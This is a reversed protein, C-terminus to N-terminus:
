QEGVVIGAPWREEEFRGLGHDLGALELPGVFREYAGGLVRRREAVLAKPRGRVHDAEALAVRRVRGLDATRHHLLEVAQDGRELRRAVVGQEGLGPAQE